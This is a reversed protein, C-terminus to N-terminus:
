RGGLDRLDRLYEPPSVRLTQSYTPVSDTDASNEVVALSGYRRKMNMYINMNMNM